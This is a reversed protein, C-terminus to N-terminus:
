TSASARTATSPTGNGLSGGDASVGISNAIFENSDSSFTPGGIGVGGSTNGSIINSSLLTNSAGDLLAVGIDNPRAVTGSIDTGIYNQQVYSYTTGPNIILVGFSSNGSVVNGETALAGGIENFDGLSVIVGYTQVTGTPAGTGSPNLGIINGRVYNLDSDEPGIGVGAFSNGSIVNGDGTGATSTAAGVFNGSADQLVVGDVNPIAATGASSTGIYNGNVVNSSGQYIRV